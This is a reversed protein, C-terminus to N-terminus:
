VATRHEDLLLLLYVCCWILLPTLDLLASKSEAKYEAHNLFTHM